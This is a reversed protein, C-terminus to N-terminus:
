STPEAEQALADEILAKVDAVGAGSESSTACVVADGTAALQKCLAAVQRQQQAGSLKDAKTFAIMYPLECKALYEIMQLDLKSADHRIDVLAVVLAHRRQQEFYGEILGQWHAREAKSVQAYGYGPLDVFHAGGGGTKADVSFFNIAATKGPTSSVKVLGKRGFVKNMLSSKGVNSRGVFSVEPLTSAPLAELSAYSAVFAASQYNLMSGLMREFAPPCNGTRGMIGFGQTRVGHTQM